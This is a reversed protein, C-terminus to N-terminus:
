RQFEGAHRFDWPTITLGMPLNLHCCDLSKATVSRRRSDWQIIDVNSRSISDGWCYLRSTHTWKRSYLSWRTRTLVTIFRGAARSVGQGPTFLETLGAAQPTGRVAKNTSCSYCNRYCGSWIYFDENSSSSTTDTEQRGLHCLLVSVKAPLWTQEPKDLAAPTQLLSKTRTWRDM